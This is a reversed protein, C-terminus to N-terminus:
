LDVKVAGQVDMLGREGTRRISPSLPSQSSKVGGPKWASVLNGTLHHSTGQKAAINFLQNLRPIAHVNWAKDKSVYEHCLCSPHCPSSGRAPRGNATATNSSWTHNESQVTGDTILTFLLVPLFLTRRRPLMSFGEDSTTTWGNAFGPVSSM